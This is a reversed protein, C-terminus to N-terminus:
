KTIKSISSATADGTDACSLVDASREASLDNGAASSLAYLSYKTSLLNLIIYFAGYVLAILLGIVFITNNNSLIQM